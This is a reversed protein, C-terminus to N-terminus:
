EHSRESLPDSLLNGICTRISLARWWTLKGTKAFARNRRENGALLLSVSNCATPERKTHPVYHALFPRRRKQKQAPGGLPARPAKRKRKPFERGLRVVHGDRRRAIWIPCHLIHQTLIILCQRTQGQSLLKVPPSVMRRIGAMCIERKNHM